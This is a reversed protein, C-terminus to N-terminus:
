KGKKKKDLLLITKLLCQAGKVISETETFEEPCHSIGDKCPIFIMGTKTIRSLHAADHGAMSVIKRSKFGLGEAAEGIAQRVSSSFRVPKIDYTVQREIEIQRKTKIQEITKEVKGIITQIRKPYYSRVEMDLIVKGPTINISNPFIKMHGVTAVAKGSEKRAADELALIIESAACLADQRREMPTTGCHSAVGFVSVTERYIGTVGEVVGIDKNEISLFPMQEIHLEVFYEIEKPKRVAESIRNIDGGINKLAIKFDQGYDDKLHDVHERKLTGVMGRSGFTSIGFTNPEESSLVCLELPHDTVLDLLDLARFVELSSFVGAPGDFKGGNRVSDLHSGTMIVPWDPHLGERRAFINGLYDIRIKLKFENRLIKVFEDRGERDENSFALRTVGGSRDQGIQAFRDILSAMRNIDFCNKLTEESIMARM